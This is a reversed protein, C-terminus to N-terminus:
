FFKLLYTKFTHAFTTGRPNECLKIRIHDFKSRTPFFLFLIFVNKVLVKYMNRFMSGIMAIIANIGRTEFSTENDSRKTPIMINANIIFLCFYSIVIKKKPNKTMSNHSYKNIFVPTSNKILFESKPIMGSHSGIRQAYPNTAILRATRMILFYIILTTKKGL